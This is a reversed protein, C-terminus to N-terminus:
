CTAAPSARSMRCPIRPWGHTPQTAVLPLDVHFRVTGGEHSFGLPEKVLRSAAELEEVESRSPYEPLGDGAAARRQNARDEDIREVNSRTSAGDEILDLANPAVVQVPPIM